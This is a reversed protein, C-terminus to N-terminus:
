KAKASSPKWDSKPNSKAFNILAAPSVYGSLNNYYDIVHKARVEVARAIAPDIGNMRLFEDSVAEPHRLKYLNSRDTIAPAAVKVYSAPVYTTENHSVPRTLVEPMPSETPMAITGSVSATATATATAAPQSAAAESAAAESSAPAASVSAPAASVSALASESELERKGKAPAVQLLGSKPLANPLLQQLANNFWQAQSSAPSPSPSTTATGSATGSQSPSSSCVPKFGQSDSKSSSYTYCFFGSTTSFASAVTAGFPQLIDSSSARGDVYNNANEPCANQWRWWTRDIMSHHIFFYPDNASAMTTFPANTGDPCVGGGSTHVVGHPGSELSNRMDGYTKSVSLFNNVASPPWLTTWRSCRVLCDSTYPYSVSWDKAVGSDVCHDSSRGTGGFYQMIESATPNQSDLTWDWYPVTLASNGTVSRLANEYNQVFYRHWPLFAPVGHALPSRDWHLRAFQDLNWQSLDNDPGKPRAKLARVASVYAQRDAESLERFERRVAPNACQAAVQSVALVALVLSAALQM